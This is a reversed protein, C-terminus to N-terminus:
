RVVKSTMDIRIVLLPTGVPELHILTSQRRSWAIEIEANAQSGTWDAYDQFPGVSSAKSNQVSIYLDRLGTTCRLGMCLAMLAQLSLNTRTGKMEELHVRTEETANGSFNFIQAFSSVQQVSQLFSQDISRSILLSHDGWHFCSQLDQTISHRMLWWLRGSAVQFDMYQSSSCISVPTTPSTYIVSLSHLKQVDSLLIVYEDESASNIITLQELQDHDLREKISGGEFNLKQLWPLHETICDATTCHFNLNDM